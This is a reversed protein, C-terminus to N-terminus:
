FYKYKLLFFDVFKKSKSFNYIFDKEEYFESMELYNCFYIFRDKYDFTELNSFVKAYTITRDTIDLPFKSIHSLFKLYDKKIDLSFDVLNKVKLRYENSARWSFQKMNCNLNGVGVCSDKKICKKCNLMLVSNEYNRKSIKLLFNEPIMYNSFRAFDFGGFISQLVCYPVGWIGFRKQKLYFGFALDKLFKLEELIFSNKDINIILNSSNPNNLYFNIIKDLVFINDKSLHLIYVLSYDKFNNNKQFLISM